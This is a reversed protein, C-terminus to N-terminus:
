LVHINGFHRQQDSDLFANRIVRHLETPVPPYALYDYAGARTAALYEPWDGTRTLVIVPPRTDALKAIEIIALYDGDALCEDCLVMCFKHRALAIQSGAVTSALIPTLGCQGLIEALRRRVRDESSVVMGPLRNLMAPVQRARDPLMVENMTSERRSAKAPHRMVSIDNFPIMPKDEAPM